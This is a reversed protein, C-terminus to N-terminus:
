EFIEYVETESWDDEYVCLRRTGVGECEDEARQRLYSDYVDVIHDRWRVLSEKFYKKTEHIEKYFTHPTPRYAEVGDRCCVIKVTVNINLVRTVLGRKVKEIKKDIRGIKTKEIRIIHKSKIINREAKTVKQGSKRKELYLQKLKAKLIAKQKQKERQTYGM